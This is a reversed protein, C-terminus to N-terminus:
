EEIRKILKIWSGDGLTPDNVLKNLLGFDHLVSPIGWFINEQQALEAPKIWKYDTHEDPNMVVDVTEPITLRYNTVHVTGHPMHVHHEGLATRGLSRIGTEEWFEREVATEPRENEDISGGPPCWLGGGLDDTHRQLLLLEGQRNFALAGVVPLVKTDGWAKLRESM